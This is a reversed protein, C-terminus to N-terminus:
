NTKSFAVGFGVLAAVLVWTVGIPGLSFGTAAGAPYVKYALIAAGYMSMSCVFLRAIM